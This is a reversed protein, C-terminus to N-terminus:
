NLFFFLYFLPIFRYIYGINGELIRAGNRNCWQRGIIHVRVWSVGRSKFLLIFIFLFLNRKMMVNPGISFRGRKLFFLFYVTKRVWSVGQSIIFFQYNQFISFKSFNVIRFSQYNAWLEFCEWCIGDWLMRLM